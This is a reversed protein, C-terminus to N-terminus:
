HLGDQDYDTGCILGNGAYGANCQCQFTTSLLPHSDVFAIVIFLRTHAM